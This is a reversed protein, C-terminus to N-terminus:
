KYLPGKRRRFEITKYKQKFSASSVIAKPDNTVGVISMEDCLHNDQLLRELRYAFAAKKL